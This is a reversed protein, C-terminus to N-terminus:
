PQKGKPGNAIIAVVPIMLFWLWTGTLFFLAVAVFPALATVMGAYPQPILGRSREPPVAVGQGTAGGYPVPPAPAPPPAASPVPAFGWAPAGLVPHPEPLDLFLLRLEGRNAARGARVGREEYGVDDIRGTSRHVELASLAADRDQQTLAVSDDDREAPGPPTSM